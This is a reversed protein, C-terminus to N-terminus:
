SPQLLLWQPSLIKVAYPTGTIRCFTKKLIYRTPMMFYTSTSISVQIKSRATLEMAYDFVFSLVCLYEEQQSSIEFEFSNTSQATISPEKSADRPRLTSSTSDESTSMSDDICTGDDVQIRPSAHLRRHGTWINHAHTLLMTCSAWVFNAIGSSEQAKESQKAHHSGRLPGPKRRISSYTCNIERELCRSCTPRKQDGSLM